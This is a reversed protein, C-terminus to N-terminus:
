FVGHELRGILDVVEDYGPNTEAFSLPTNDALGVNPSKLWTNAADRNGEFLETSLAALKALRFVRDSETPTLRTTKRRALTRLKIYTYRALEQDGLDLYSQVARLRTATFGKEICKIIYIPRVNEQTLKLVSSLTATIDDHSVKKRTKGRIVFKAPSIKQEAKSQAM